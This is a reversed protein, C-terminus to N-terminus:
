RGAKTIIMETGIEYFRNWLESGQLDVRVEESRGSRRVEGLSPSDEAVRTIAADRGPDSDEPGEPGKLAGGAAAASNRQDLTSELPGKSDTESTCTDAPDDGSVDAPFGAADAAGGSTKRRKCPKGVLAEVSFAHARSSLGQMSRRDMWERPPPPPPSTVRSISQGSHEGADAPAPTKM